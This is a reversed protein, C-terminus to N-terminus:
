APLEGSGRARLTTPVVLTDPPSRDGGLRRFAIEAATRGIATPDQAVVSIGPSLVDALPVDDFGVLAVRHQLGREHIARVAGVTVNNQATFFATPPDPGDLLALAADHAAVDSHLDHVVLRDDPTTGARHLADVYGAFRLQATVIAHLDGLYAIRRHGHRALHDVASAAGARNDVIVADTAIGVPARDVFM